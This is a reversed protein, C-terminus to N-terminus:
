WNLVRYEGPQVTIATDPFDLDPLAMAQRLTTTIPKDSTNNVDVQWQGPKDFLRMVNITLDKGDGDAVVPHGAMVHTKDAKYPYLPFHASGAFDLGLGRYRNKGDGYRGAVYGDIQFLGASWNRNLGAVRMPLTIELNDAPKPIVIEVAHNDTQVDVFGPTDLRKGKPVTMGDPKVLYSHLRAIQKASKIGVNISANLSPLEFHFKGGQKVQQGRLDAFVALWQGGASKYNQVRLLVPEGRVTFLNACATKPSFVGLWGGATLRLEKQEKLAEVDILEGPSDPKEGVLLSVPTVMPKQVNRLLCLEKVVGDRKFTIDDSFVCPRIGTRVGRVAADYGQPGVTPPYYEKYGLTYEMLESPGGHPGFTHWCNAVNVIDKDVLEEQRSAVALFGEDLTETIPYQNFRGGSEAGQDTTISPRSEQLDVLPITAPPGGDWTFGAVENPLEPASCVPLTGVGHFSRMPGDNFHDGCYGLSRVDYKLSRRAFSLAKGGATDEAVVVLNKMITGNLILKESFHKAGNPLFRRFLKRGDYISIEKLGKDSSVALESEMIAPLTVFEEGGVTMPRYIWPWAHIIPGNSVFVNMGDYSHSWRLADEMISKRTRAQVYTLANGGKAEKILEEPSRVENVSVPTPPMTSQLTTLYDDTMDEVLKGEKYYRVGALSCNRQFPMRMGKGSDAWNYYGINRRQNMHNLHFAFTPEDNYGTFKGDPGRPQIKLEDKGSGTLAEPPPWYGDEAVCMTHNGINNKITYGPILKVKADSLKKCDEVLKLYNDKGLTKFDDLFVVFDLGAQKAAAAYDAVSGKGGGLGSRAGILGKYIHGNAPPRHWQQVNYEWFWYMYDCLDKAEKRYNTPVLTNEGTIYGGVAGSALSPEALWRYTNELLRGFDSPKGNLGKSLVERDFIFGTGSGVTFQPASPVFAIRGKKYDRIAFFAPSKEGQERIIPNPILDSYKSKDEHVPRTEATDSAKAVVTWDKSLVLPITGCANYGM